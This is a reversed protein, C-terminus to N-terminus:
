TVSGYGSIRDKINGQSDGPITVMYGSKYVRVKFVDEFHKTFSEVEPFFKSGSQAVHECKSTMAYSYLNIFTGTAM